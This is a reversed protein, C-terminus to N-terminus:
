NKYAGTSFCDVLHWCALITASFVIPTTIKLFLNGAIGLALIIMGPKTIIKLIAGALTVGLGLYFTEISFGDEGNAIHMISTGLVCFVALINYLESKSKDM